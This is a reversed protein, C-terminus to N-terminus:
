VVPLPCCAWVTPSCGLARVVVLVTPAPPCDPSGCWEIATCGLEDVGYEAPVNEEPTDPMAAVPDVPRNGVNGDAEDASLWGTLAAVAGAFAAATLVTLETALWGTVVVGTLEATVDWAVDCGSVVVTSFDDVTLVPNAGCASRPPDLEEWAVLVADRVAVASWATCCPVPDLTGTLVGRVPADLVACGLASLM